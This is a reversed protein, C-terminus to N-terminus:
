ALLQHRQVLNSSEPPTRLFEIQLNIRKPLGTAADASGYGPPTKVDVKEKVCTNLIATPADLQLVDWDNHTAIVLSM